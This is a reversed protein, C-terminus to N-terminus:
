HLLRSRLGESSFLGSFFPLIGALLRWKSMSHRCLTVFVQLKRIQAAACRFSEDCLLSDLRQFRLFEALGTARPDMREETLEGSLYSGYSWTKNHKHMSQEM